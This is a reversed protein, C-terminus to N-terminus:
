THKSPKYASRFVLEFKKIKPLCKMAESNEGARLCDVMRTYEEYLPILSLNASAGKLTHAYRLLEAYDGKRAAKLLNDYDASEWYKKICKEYLAKSNLFRKMADNKDFGNEEMKSYDIM